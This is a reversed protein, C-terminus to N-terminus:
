QLKEITDFLDILAYEEQPLIAAYLYKKMNNFSEIDDHTQKWKELYHNGLRYSASTDGMEAARKYFDLMASYSFENDYIFRYVFSEKESSIKSALKNNAKVDDFFCQMYAQLGGATEIYIQMCEGLWYYAQRKISSAGNELSHELWYMAYALMTAVDCDSSNCSILKSTTDEDRVLDIAIHVYEIGLSLMADAKGNKAEKLVEVPTDIYEFKSIIAKTPGMEMEGEYQNFHKSLFVM